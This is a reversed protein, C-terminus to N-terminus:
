PTTETAVATLREVEVLLTHYRAAAEVERGRLDFLTKQAQALSYFSFRGANFGRRTFDLAQEAKPVLRATLSETEFRAHNLEQYKEFLAQHLEFHRADRQAELAALRADAESVSYAARSRSGLPLSLSLVLAQDDLAESRRVGLSLSIDPKASAVAVRREASITEAQLLSARQEASMPLREALKEFSDIAPLSKLDGAVAQFDPAFAGWSAALTSRASALEHEAHERDLEAEAVVIEAAFLDSEPNRAAKVWAAIENRTLGAQEVRENAYELRQQDALVEIFRLTTRSALEIRASEALIQRQRVEADGLALRATRKGGLEIVRGIRLTTEAGSVGSLAGSGAVNEVEAGIVYPPSLAGREARMRTAQLLSDEAALTPNKALARAVAEELRLLEAAHGKPVVAGIGALALILLFRLNM